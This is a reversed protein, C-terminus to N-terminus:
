NKNSSKRGYWLWHFSFVSFKHRYIIESDFLWSVLTLLAWSFRSDSDSNHSNYPLNVFCCLLQSLSLKEVSNHVAAKSGIWGNNQLLLTGYQRSYGNAWFSFACYVQLIFRKDISTHTFYASITKLFCFFTWLFVAIVRIPRPICYTGSVPSPWAQGGFAKPANKLQFLRVKQWRCLSANSCVCWCKPRSSIVVMLGTLQRRRCMNTSHTNVCMRETM